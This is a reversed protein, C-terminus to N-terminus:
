VNISGANKFVVQIGKFVVLVFLTVGILTVM